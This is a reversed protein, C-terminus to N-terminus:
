NNIQRVGRYTILKGVTSTVEGDGEVRWQWRWLEGSGGEKAEQACLGGSVDRM